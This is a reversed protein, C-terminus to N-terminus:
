ELLAGRLEERFAFMLAPATVMLAYGLLPDRWALGAHGL